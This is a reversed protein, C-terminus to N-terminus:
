IINFDKRSYDKNNVIFDEDTGSLRFYDLIVWYLVDYHIYLYPSSKIYVCFYNAILLPEMLHDQFSNSPEACFKMFHSM